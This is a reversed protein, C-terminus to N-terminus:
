LQLQSVRLYLHCLIPPLIRIYYTAWFRFITKYLGFHILTRGFCYASQDEIGEVLCSLSESCNSYWDGTRFVVKLDSMKLIWFDWGLNWKVTGLIQRSPFAPGQCYCDSLESCIASLFKRQTVIGFHAEFVFLFIGSIKM